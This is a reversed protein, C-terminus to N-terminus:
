GLVKEAHEMRRELAELYEERSAHSRRAVGTRIAAEAVAPTVVSLLRRDTIKPLLYHPGFHLRNNYTHAVEQPVEWEALTAIAEAAALLM